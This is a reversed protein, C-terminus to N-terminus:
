AAPASALSAAFEDAISRDVVIRETSMCIQGQHMFAGFNRPPSRGTSTPTPAARGAAGQRRARAARAQPPPRRERRRAARRADLRHLQDAADGPPRDARRRRRGRGRAREHHLQRRRRAAGADDCRTSSRARAHAPVGRVGQARGHQRLGAAHGGRAHRPDGPREVARHRRRRRRAPARAMACSARSTPPSSRASTVAYAQARRGRAADRRRAHLQVHGLRVHRRDGRHRHRRDAGASSSCTRPPASCSAGSRPRRAPGRRSPRARRTPPPGRTRAAPRPRAGAAEGTFPNTKEFSRGSSAGVWEGGILLQQEDVDVTAM